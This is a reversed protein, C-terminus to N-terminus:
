PDLEDIAQAFSFLGFIGGTHLFVTTGPAKAAHGSLLARFAKGTYVPDLFLGETRAVRAYLAMEGATTRAYGTGKYGDVIEFRAGARVAAQAFGQEVVDDLIRHIVGDFYDRDDCVAVGLVDIDSRGLAALGLALGATTGGSGTAHVICRLDFGAEDAQALMEEAALAYGLAGLANSGGEPIVYARKGKAELAMAIEQMHAERQPWAEPAIFTTEAGVLRDLLLNGESLAPENGHLLLHSSLL